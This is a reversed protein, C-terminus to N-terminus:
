TTGGPRMSETFLASEKAERYRPDAEPVVLVKCFPDFQDVTIDVIMNEVAVWAHPRRKFRGRVTRSRFGNNTLVKELALSFSICFGALSPGLGKQQKVFEEGAARVAHAILNISQLHDSM